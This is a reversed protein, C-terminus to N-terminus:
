GLLEKWLDKMVIADGGGTCAAVVEAEASSLSVSTQKRSHACLPFFSHPGVLAIFTGSTNKADQRDGAYDADSFYAITLGTPPDGIFGVMRQSHSSHIYEVLRRLKRDEWRGWKTLHRALQGVARLLDPRAMRAAYMATM